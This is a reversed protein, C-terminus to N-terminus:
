GAVRPEMLLSLQVIGEEEVPVPEVFQQLENLRHLRRALEVLSLRRLVDITIPRKSDTFILSQLFEQAPASELLEILFEAEERSKCPISYCTDDVM